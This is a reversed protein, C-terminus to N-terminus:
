PGSRHRPLGAGARHSRRRRDRRLRRHLPGTRYMDPTEGLGRRSPRIGLSLPRCGPFARWPLAVATGRPYLPHRRGPVRMAAQPAPEIPSLDRVRDDLASLRRMLAARADTAFAHEVYRVVAFVEAPLVAVLRHCCWSCGPRCAIPAADAVDVRPRVVAWVRDAHAQAAQAMASMRRERPADCAADLAAFYVANQIEGAKIRPGIGGDPPTAPRPPPKPPAAVRLSPVIPVAHRRPVPVPRSHFALFAFADAADFGPTDRRPGSRSRRRQNKHHTQYAQLPSSAGESEHLSQPRNPSAVVLPLMAQRGVGPKHSRGNSRGTSFLPRAAPRPAGRACHM